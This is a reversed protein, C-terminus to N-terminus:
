LTLGLSNLISSPSDMQSMWYGLRKSVSLMEKLESSLSNMNKKIIGKNSSILTGDEQFHMIKNSCAFVIAKKSFQNTKKVRENFRLLVKQNRSVWTYLGTASNTGKFENRISESLVLPLPLLLLPYFCGRESNSEYGQLFSWLVISGLVPNTITYVDSSVM